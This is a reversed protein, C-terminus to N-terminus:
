YSISQLIKEVTAYDPNGTFEQVTEAQYAALSPLNSIARFSTSVGDASPSPIYYTGNPQELILANGTGSDLGYTIRDLILTGLKGATFSATKIVQSCDPCLSAPEGGSDPDTGQYSDITLLVNANSLTIHEVNDKNGVAEAYTWSAPYKISFKARPSTATKWGTYTDEATSSSGSATSKGQQSSTSTSNSSKKKDHDHRWALWGCAAIAVVVVIIILLEVISFGQRDLKKHM